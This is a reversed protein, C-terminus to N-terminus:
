AIGNLYLERDRMLEDPWERCRETLIAETRAREDPSFLAPGIRNSLQRAYTETLRRFFVFYLCPLYGDAITEVIQYHQTRDLASRRRNRGGRGQRGSQSRHRRARREFEKYSVMGSFRNFLHIRLPVARRHEHVVYVKEDRVFSLWSSFDDLNPVTASLGLIRVHKPLYILIEEWVTGREPDALFHIEDFIVHSLDQLRERDQLLMNRLIETTMICIPAQHNVVLDGTVLGIKTADWARTYDRYKQNSLAKIPATYVVRRSDRLAKAVIFDAVVTKGTGTPASVLVSKGADVLRIAEDQFRDLAFGPDFPTGSDKNSM